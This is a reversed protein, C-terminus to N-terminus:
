EALSAVLEATVFDPQRIMLQYILTDKDIM